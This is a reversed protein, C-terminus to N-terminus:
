EAVEEPDFNVLGTGDNSDKSCGILVLKATGPIPQDLAWALSHIM